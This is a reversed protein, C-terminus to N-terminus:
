DEIDFELCINLFSVQCNPKINSIECFNVPSLGPLYFANVCQLTIFFVALRKKMMEHKRFISM